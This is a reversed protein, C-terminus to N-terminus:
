VRKRAIFQVVSALGTHGEGESVERKLERILIPECNPFETELKVVTMLLDSDKPGGTRRSFQNESYAELLIIGRPKLCQEILPYLKNRIASPLHASISIVSGYFSTRPEFSALDAVETQITVNRLKALAKAKELGVESNDVGHVNFGRTALFVANRGEGESLSLVPGTLLDAHEVLFSNPVTGYLYENSSYRENWYKKDFM